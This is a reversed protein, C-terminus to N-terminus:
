WVYNSHDLSPPHSQCPMYCSHPLLPICIPYLITTADSLKIVALCIKTFKRIFIPSPPNGNCLCIEINILLCCTEVLCVMM